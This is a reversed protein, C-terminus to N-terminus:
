GEINSCMNSHPLDSAGDTWGPNPADPFRFFARISM